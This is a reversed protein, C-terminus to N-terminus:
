LIIGECEVGEQTFRIRVSSTYRNRRESWQLIQECVSFLDGWTYDVHTRRKLKVLYFYALTVLDIDIRVKKSM